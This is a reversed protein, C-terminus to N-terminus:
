KLASSRFLHGPHPICVLGNQDQIQQITENVSRHSPIEKTLFLGMIEGGPTRIEEAIIITFPALKKLLLAGEITGHDAIALCNIGTQLCYSIINEPSTLCDLSYCTHVHLDAKLLNNVSGKWTYGQVLIWKSEIAM